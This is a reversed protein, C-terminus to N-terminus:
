VFQQMVTGIANVVGGPSYLSQIYTNGYLINTSLVNGVNIFTGDINTTLGSISTTGTSVINNTVSSVSLTATSTINTNTGTLNVSPSSLTASTSAYTTYTDNYGLYTKRVANTGQQFDANLTLPRNAIIQTNFITDYDNYTGAADGFMIDDLLVPVINKLRLNKNVLMTFDGNCTTNSNITLTSINNTGIQTNTSNLSTQDGSTTFNATNSQNGSVTLTRLVSTNATLQNNINGAEVSTSTQNIIGDVILTNYEGLYLTNNITTYGKLTIDDETIQNLGSDLDGIRITDSKFVGSINTVNTTNNLSINATKQNLGILNNTHDEVVEALDAVASAAGNATTNATAAAAAAGTAIGDAILAATLGATAETMAANILSEANQINGIKLNGYVNANSNIDFYNYPDNRTVNKLKDQSSLIIPIINIKNGSGDTYQIEGLSCLNTFINFQTPAYYIMTGIKDDLISQVTSQLAYNNSLNTNISNIQNQCDSTLTNTRSISNDFQTKSFTSINGTFNFNNANLTQSFTSNNTTFTLYQTKDKLNNTDTQITSISPILSLQSNTIVTSGETGVLLSSDMRLNQTFIAQSNYTKIGGVSQNGTLGVFSSNNISASAISSAPFSLNNSFSTTLTINNYSIATTKLQLATINAEDTNLRTNLNGTLGSLFNVNKINSNLVTSGGNDVILDGNLQISSFIQTGSWNKIGTLNSQNTTKTVFDSNDISSSLISSTPFSMGGTFYTINLSSDYTISPYPSIQGTGSFAALLSGINYTEGQYDIYGNGYIHLNKPIQTLEDQQNFTLSNIGNVIAGSLEINGNSTIKNTEIEGGYIVTGANDTILNLGSLTKPM